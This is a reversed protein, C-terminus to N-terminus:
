GRSIMYKNAKEELEDDLPALVEFNSYKHKLAGSLVKDCLYPNKPFLPGHIYTATVNKYLVGEFGSKGDNGCGKVVKGLPTYSGTDLRGNHNEFGVVPMTLGDCEIIANGILKEAAFKTHIDLIGLGEVTKEATQFYGGLMEYGSCLAVLSGGNEVFSLLEEKKSKLKECVIETERDSGGGLFIIDAASFDVNDNDATCSAVEVDIGRWILRRRMAEINGKDGYLNLLDPYLHLISIKYDSM